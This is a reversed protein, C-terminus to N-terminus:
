AAGVEDDAGAGCVLDGRCDPEGAAVAQGEGDACAPVADGPEGRHVAPQEEVQAPEVVDGDVGPGPPHPDAPTGRPAGDGPRQLGVPEAQGGTVGRADADAPQRQAPADAPHHTPVPQGDVVEDAR